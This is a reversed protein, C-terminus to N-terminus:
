GINIKTAFIIMNEWNNASVSMSNQWYDNNKLIIPLFMGIIKGIIVSEITVYVFDNM